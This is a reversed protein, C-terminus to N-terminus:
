KLTAYDDVTVGCSRLILQVTSIFRDKMVRNTIEDYHAGYFANEDRVTVCLHKLQSPHHIICGNCIERVYSDLTMNLLHLIAMKATRIVELDLWDGCSTTSSSPEWMTSAAHLSGKEHESATHSAEAPRASHLSDGAEPGEELWAQHLSEVGSEAIVSHSATAAPPPKVDLLSIEPTADSDETTNPPLHPTASSLWRVVDEALSESCVCQFHDAEADRELMQLDEPTLLPLQLHEERVLPLQSSYPTTAPEPSSPQYGMYYDPPTSARLPSTPDDSSVGWFASLSSQRLLRYM